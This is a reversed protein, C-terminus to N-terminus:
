FNPKGLNVRPNLIGLATGVVAGLTTGLVQSTLTVLNITGLNVSAQPYSAVLDAGRILSGEHALSVCIPATIARETLTTRPINNPLGAASASSLMAIPAMLALLSSFRM